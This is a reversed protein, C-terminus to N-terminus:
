SENFIRITSLEKLMCVPWVNFKIEGIEASIFLIIFSSDEASVGRPTAEAAGRGGFVGQDTAM